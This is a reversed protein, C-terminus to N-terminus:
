KETIEQRMALIRKHSILDRSFNQLDTRIEILKVSCVAHSKALVTNNKPNLVVIEQRFETISRRVVLLTARCRAFKNQAFIADLYAVDDAMTLLLDIIDVNRKEVKIMDLPESLDNLDEIAKQLRKLFGGNEYEAEVEKKAM